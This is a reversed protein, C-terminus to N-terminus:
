PLIVVETGMGLHALLQQQATKPLRVCGNSVNKGFAGADYWAHIGTHAALLGTGASARDPVAGLPLTDVGAYVKSHAASRALVFTRGLPTPTRSTGVAVTWRGALAGDHLWSLEHAGRRVIIQDHLEATSWGGPALWAITRNVSPLLVARWGERQGVIPVTLPAGSITPALYALARGGPADYAAIKRIPHLAQTLPTTSSIEPDPPFGKPVAKFYDIVPLKAPAPPPPSVPAASPSAAPSPSASPVWSSAPVAAERAPPSHLMAGVSLMALLGAVLAALSLV